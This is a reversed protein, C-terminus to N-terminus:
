GNDSAPISFLNPSAHYVFLSRYDNFMLLSIFIVFIMVIFEFLIYLRLQSAMDAQDLEQYKKGGQKLYIGDAWGFHFFGIYSTYFVYLQWYAYERIGLIKPLIFASLISLMLNIGNALASLSFNKLLIKKNM